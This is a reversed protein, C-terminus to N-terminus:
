HRTRCKTIQYNTYKQAIDLWQSNASILVQGDFYFSRNYSLKFFTKRHLSAVKDIKRAASKQAERKDVM